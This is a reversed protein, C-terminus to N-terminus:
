AFGTIDYPTAPYRVTLDKLLTELGREWVKTLLSRLTSREEPSLCGLIELGVGRKGAAQRYAHEGKETLIVRIVNKREIDRLRRILGKKAMQKLMVSITQPERLLQRSIDAPTVPYDAAKVIYLVASQMMSIGVERLARQRAKVFIDRNQHLLSWIALYEDIEPKSIKATM